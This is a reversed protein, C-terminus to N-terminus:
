EVFYVAVLKWPGVGDHLLLSPDFLRFLSVLSEIFSVSGVKVHHIESCCPGGEVLRELNQDKPVFFPPRDLDM